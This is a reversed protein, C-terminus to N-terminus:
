KLVVNKFSPFVRDPLYDDVRMQTNGSWKELQMPNNICIELANFINETNVEELRIGNINNIVVDGCNGSAIVPLGNNMAELQTMGFGDSLTPFIFVDCKRYYQETNTRSVPGIWHIKRNDQMERNLTVGNFGIFWFEVPLDQMEQVAYLLPVIGKRVILSGLFLVRLPREHTFEDPYKKLPITKQSRDLMLPIVSIKSGDIGANVLADFSWKSNVIIHDAHECEQYWDDWYEKPARSWVPSLERCTNVADAVLDEEYKGADIQGLVTKCGKKKAIKFIELAGYSYSFVVPKNGAQNIDDLFQRSNVVKDQFWLNRNYIRSWSGSKRVSQNLEFFFESLNFATVCANELKHTYRSQIIDPLYATIVGPKVWVDTYLHKLLGNKQFVAPIAFNERAGIQSIICQTLTM